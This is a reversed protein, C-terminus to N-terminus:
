GSQESPLEPLHSINGSNRSPTINLEIPGIDDSLETSSPHFKSIRQISPARARPINTSNRSQRTRKSSAVSGSRHRNGVFPEHSSYSSSQQTHPFVEQMTISLGNDISKSPTRTILKTIAKELKFGPKSDVVKYNETGSEGPNISRAFSGRVSSGRRSPAASAFDGDNVSQGCVSSSGSMNQIKARGGRTPNAMGRVPFVGAPTAKPRKKLGTSTTSYLTIGSRDSECRMVPQALYHTNGLTGPGDFCNSSCNYSIQEAASSGVSRSSPMLNRELANGDKENYEKGRAQEEDYQEEEPQVRVVRSDMNLEPQEDREEYQPLSLSKRDREVVLLHLYFPVLLSFFFGGIINGIFVPILLKWIYKGVSVDAGNLMGIFLPPMDAVAHSFGISVFSFIPLSIMIWKVHLPKAMLQLYIALCVYFNGAIGKLFNQIFSFSAKTEALDRSGLKWLPSTGVSSLHVFVYCLLLCGGINGFFSCFWSILLDYINVSRRLIGVSFYLINSNFLDVGLIVVFFLGIGYFIGGLFNLVGPNKERIDPNESYIAVNLIGGSGFVIGAIVSNIVLVDLQMRAKKMSTAELALAAEHPTIYTSDDVVM